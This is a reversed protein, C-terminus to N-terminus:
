TLKQGQDLRLVIKPGIYKSSSTKYNNTIILPHNKVMISGTSASLVCIGPRRFQRVHVTTCYICVVVVIVVVAAIIVVILVIGNVVIGNCHIFVREYM